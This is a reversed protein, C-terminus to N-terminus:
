KFSDIKKQMLDIAKNIVIMKNQLLCSENEDCNKCEIDIGNYNCGFDVDKELLVSEAFKIKESNFLNILRSKCALYEDCICEKQKDCNLCITEDLIQEICIIYPEIEKELEFKNKM